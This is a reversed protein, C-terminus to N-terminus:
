WLFILSISNEARVSNNKINISLSEQPWFLTNRIFVSVLDLKIYPPRFTYFSGLIIGVFAYLPDQPALCSQPFPWQDLKTIGNM